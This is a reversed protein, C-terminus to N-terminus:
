GYLNLSIVKNILEEITGNNDIVIDFRDYNDLETESSHDMKVSDRNVRILTANLRNKVAEAENIFRVDTIIYSGNESLDDFLSEIWIDKSINRGVETGFRQLLERNTYPVGDSNTLHLINPADKYIPDYWFEISTNTIVSLVRKLKDAFAVRQIDSCANVTISTNFLFRKIFLAKDPYIKQFYFSNKWTDELVIINAVTDKGAGAHGSIALVKM